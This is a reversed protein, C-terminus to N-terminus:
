DAIKWLHADSRLYLAGRSIAPTALLTEAFDYKFILEGEQDGPKVIHALGKENFFYLHGGAAIPSSSFPGTLRLRWILKGTKADACSVVGVRNATYLRGGLALPSGVSPGLRSERWLFEPSESQPVPRLATLGHSPVYVVGAVVLSSPITSAGDDYSWAVRGTAAHVGSLGASSQLLVFGDGSTKGKLIVPSTWNARRPRDIKWRSIGTEVDVGIAFAEADAEIQVILTEGVVVPSSAMGIGNSANPYDQNLGRYWLLNGELDLCVLDGSSYLAFIRRGDSAPTPAAVCTKPHSLTSGTVWFQREWTPKGTEADFCFVHLRNQKYRSSSTVVVRNGIVIPSSVGRGPLEATWVFDKWSTPASDPTLSNVNSGRFQLWDAGTLLCVSAAASFLHILPRRM